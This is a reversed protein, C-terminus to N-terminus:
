PYYVAIYVCKLSIAAEAFMSYGLIFNQCFTTIRVTKKESFFRCREQLTFYYVKLPAITSPDYNSFAM